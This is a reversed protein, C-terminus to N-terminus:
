AGEEHVIFESDPYVISGDYFSHFFVRSDRVRLNCWCEQGCKECEAIGLVLVDRLEPSGVQPEGWVLTDGERYAHRRLNGYKFQVERIGKEGCHPCSSEVILSNYM